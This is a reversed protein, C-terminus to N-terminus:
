GICCVVVVVALHVLVFYCRHHGHSCACIDELKSQFRWEGDACSPVPVQNNRKIILRVTDNRGSQPKSSIRSRRLSKSRTSCPGCLAQSICM